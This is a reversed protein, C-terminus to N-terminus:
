RASTIATEYAAMTARVTAEPSLGEAWRRATAVMRDRMAHDRHLRDIAEAYSAPTQDGVILVREDDGALERMSPIDAGVLPVGHAMARLAANPMGETRSPMVFVDAAVYWPDVRTQWGPLIFRDSCPSQKARALIADRERGDGVLAIRPEPHEILPTCDILTELRKVPDFRGVWLVLWAEPPVGLETRAQSRNPGPPIPEISPPVLRIRERAVGFARHVHDAVARSNVIHIRDLWATRRELMLHSRREVEITASSGVVPIGLLRGVIRAAVNAHTLTAHVLDPKIAKLRRRLRGFASFSRVSRADCAFTPIGATQLQASVPGPPALCGVHVEVGHEALGIALRALRLPTGGPQLDTVLLAIRM